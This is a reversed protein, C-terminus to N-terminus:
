LTDALRLPPLTSSYRNEPEDRPHGKDQSQAVWNEKEGKGVLSLGEAKQLM